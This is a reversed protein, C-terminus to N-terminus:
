PPSQWNPFILHPYREATTDHITVIVKAKTKVPFYTYVSPFYFVDLDQGHQHVAQRMAWLDKISRRGSASAAQTAAEATGVVVQEVGEPLDTSLLATEKDLFMRYENRKDSSLLTRLLERTYRGYGRQNAWCSADIGIKM